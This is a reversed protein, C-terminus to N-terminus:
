RQAAREGAHFGFAGSERGEGLARCVQILARMAGCCQGPGAGIPVVGAGRVRLRLVGERLRQLFLPEFGIGPSGEEERKGFDLRKLRARRSVVLLQKRCALGEGGFAQGARCCRGRRVELSESFGGAFGLLVCGAGGPGRSDQLLM